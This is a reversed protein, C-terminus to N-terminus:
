SNKQLYQIAKQLVEVSDGSRGLVTNCSICLLGRIKGSSHCHDLHPSKTRDGTMISPFQFDCIACKGGQTDFLNKFDIESIGYATKRHHAAVKEKNNRNWNRKTANRREPNEKSWKRAAAKCNEPAKAYWERRAKKECERCDNRFGNIPNPRFFEKTELKEDGCKICAKTM